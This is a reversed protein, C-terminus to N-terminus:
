QKQQVQTSEEQFKREKPIKITLISAFNKAKKNQMGIIRHILPNIKKILLRKKVNTM